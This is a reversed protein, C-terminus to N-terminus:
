IIGTLLLRWSVNLTNLAGYLLNKDNKLRHGEDVVMGVWKVKQFFSRSHDDIPAEFSTVVIHAKLYPSGGPFLEYEM